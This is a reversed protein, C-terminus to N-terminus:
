HYAFGGIAIKRHENVVIHLAYSTVHIKGNVDDGVQAIGAAQAGVLLFLALPGFYQLADASGVADKEEVLATGVIRATFKGCPEGTQHKASLFVDPEDDAAGVSKGIRYIVASVAFYGHAAHGKRVLHYAQKYGFLNVACEGDDVVLGVVVVLGSM